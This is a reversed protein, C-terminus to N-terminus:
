IADQCDHNRPPTRLKVGDDDVAGGRALALGSALSTVSDHSVLARSYIATLLEFLEM